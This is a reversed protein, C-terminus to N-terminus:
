FPPLDESIFSLVEDVNLVLLGKINILVFINFSLLHNDPLSVITSILSPNNGVNIFGLLL